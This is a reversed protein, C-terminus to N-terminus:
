KLTFLFQIRIKYFNKIILLFIIKSLIYKFMIKLTKMVNIINVIKFYFKILDKLIDLIFYKLTQEDSIYFCYFRL